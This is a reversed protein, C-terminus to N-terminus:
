YPLHLGSEATFIVTGTAATSQIVGNPQIEIMADRGFLREEGSLSSIERAFPLGAAALLRSDEIYLGALSANLWRAMTVLSLLSAETISLADLAILIRRETQM